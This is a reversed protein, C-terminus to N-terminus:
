RLLDLSRAHLLATHPLQLESVSWLEFDGGPMTRVIELPVQGREIELMATRYATLDRTDEDPLTSPAGDMLHQLRACLLSTFEYKSM